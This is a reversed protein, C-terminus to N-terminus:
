PAPPTRWRAALARPVAAMVYLGALLIAVGLLKTPTDTARGVLVLGLVSGATAAIRVGVMAFWRGRATDDPTM